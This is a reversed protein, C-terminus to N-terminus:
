PFLINHARPPPLPSKCPRNPLVGSQNISLFAVPNPLLFPSPRLGDFLIKMDEVSDIAVGAMGVDGRVRENDSDYGICDCRLSTFATIQM